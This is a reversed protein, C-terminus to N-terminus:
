YIVISMWRFFFSFLIESLISPGRYSLGPCVPELPVNFNTCNRKGAQIAGYLLTIGNGYNSHKLFMFNWTHFQLSKLTVHMFISPVVSNWSFVMTKLYRQSLGLFHIKVIRKYVFVLRSPGVDRKLSSFSNKLYEGPCDKLLSEDVDCHWFLGFLGIRLSSLSKEWNAVINFISVPSM